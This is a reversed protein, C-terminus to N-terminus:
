KDLKKYVKTLSGAILDFWGKQFNNYKSNQTQHGLLRLEMKKSSKLLMRYQNSHYQFPFQKLFNFFIEIDSPFDHNKTKSRTRTGTFREGHRWLWPFLKWLPDKNMFKTRAVLGNPYVTPLTKMWYDERQHWNEM